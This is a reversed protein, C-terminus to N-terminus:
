QWDKKRREFIAKITPISLKIKREALERKVKSFNPKDIKNFWLDIVLKETEEDTKLPQTKPKTSKKLLGAEGAKSYLKGWRYITKLPVGYKLSVAKADGTDCYEKAVRIRKKDDYKM